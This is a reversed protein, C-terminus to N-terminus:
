TLEQVRKWYAVVESPQINNHPQGNSGYSKVHDTGSNVGIPRSDTNLTPAEAPTLAHTKEGLQNGITGFDSDGSAIGVPVRGILCREWTLGLFNSHDDDDYWIIISGVPYLESYNTPMNGGPIALTVKVVPVTIDSVPKQKAYIFVGGDDDLNNWMDTEWSTIPAFIGSDIDQLSFVVDATAEKGAIETACQVSCTWPYKDEEAGANTWGSLPFVVNQYIYVQKPPNVWEPETGYGLLKGESGGEPLSSSPPDVAIAEGSSNFGIYQGSTGILKNQKDTILNRLIEDTFPLQTYTKVGDGVKARLEGSDTDILIIEGNLLVPNNATWNAATDRKSKIRTNFNSM